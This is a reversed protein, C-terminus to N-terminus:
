DLSPNCLILSMNSIPVKLLDSVHRFPPSFFIFRPPPTPPVAKLRIDVGYGRDTSCLKDSLRKLGGSLQSGIRCAISPFFFNSTAIVQNALYIKVEAQLYSLKALRYAEELRQKSRFSFFIHRKTFPALKLLNCLLFSTFILKM